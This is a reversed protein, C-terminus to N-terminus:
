FPSLLHNLTKQISGFFAPRPATLEVPDLAACARHLRSNALRNAQALKRLCELTGQTPDHPTTHAKRMVAVGQEDILVGDTFTGGSDVSIRYAVRREMHPEIRGCPRAM